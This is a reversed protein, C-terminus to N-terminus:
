SDIRTAMSVHAFRQMAQQQALVTLVCSAGSLVLFPVKELLLGPEIFTGFRGGHRQLPWFDLLLLLFPLTVLMPKSMLSLAFFGVALWYWGWKVVPGRRAREEVSAGREVSRVGATYAWLALLGFFTSLVDKRESVWAVSEVHLPHLAFLGAVFASRWHAGTATRLFLFVLLTNALHFLLNVIHPGAAGAGFLQADMMHSLWTLPHWNHAYGIRFAWALGDWKLGQLVHPNATVYDSDDLSIYDFSRVARFVVLTLVALLLCLLATGNMLRAM